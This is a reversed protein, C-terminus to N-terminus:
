LIMINEDDVIWQTETIAFDLQSRINSEHDMIEDNEHVNDIGIVNIQKENRSYRSNAHSKKRENITAQKIKKTTKEQM